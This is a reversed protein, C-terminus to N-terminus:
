SGLYRQVADVQRAAFFRKTAIPPRVAGESVFCVQDCIRKADEPQHTVMLTTLKQESHLDKVLGLMQLRLGPDLAAFPEDLLLVPRKRVLMRALAVRQVEGGSMEGPKRRAHTELGVRALAASVERREADSLALAPSIGLAVNTWADLHAFVNNDQFIMSVPRAAPAAETMDVGDILVRGSSLPVFGAIISLLTSKGAGSPGLVACLSGSAVTLDATLRFGESDHVVQELGIM